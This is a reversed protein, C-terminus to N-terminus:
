RPLESQQSSLGAVAMAPTGVEAGDGGSILSRLVDDARVREGCEPCTVYGDREARLGLLLYSCKVCQGRERIVRRIARRLLFDRVLLGVMPGSGIVMTMVMVPGLPSLELWRGLSPVLRCALAIAMGTAPLALVGAAFVAIARAATQWTPKSAARVFKQCRADDFEDLEPFARWIKSGPIRM